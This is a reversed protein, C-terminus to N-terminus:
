QALVTSLPFNTISESKLSIHVCQSKFGPGDAHLASTIGSCWKDSFCSGVYLHEGIRGINEHVGHVVHVVYLLLLTIIKNNSSCGQRWGSTPVKLDSDSLSTKAVWCCPVLKSITAQKGSNQLLQTISLKTQALSAQYSTRSSVHSGRKGLKSAQCLREIQEMALVDVLLVM